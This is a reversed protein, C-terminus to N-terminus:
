RCVILGRKGLQRIFRDIDRKAKSLDIKYKTSLFKYIHNQARPRKCFNWVLSATKNLLFSRYTKLNFVVLSSPFNVVCVDKPQKVKM